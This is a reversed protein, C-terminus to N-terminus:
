VYETLYGNKKEPLSFAFFMKDIFISDRFNYLILNRSCM